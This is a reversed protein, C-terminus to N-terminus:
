RCKLHVDRSYVTPRGVFTPREVIHIKYFKPSPLRITKRAIVPPLIYILGDLTYPSFTTYCLQYAYPLVNLRINSFYTVTSIVTFIRHM